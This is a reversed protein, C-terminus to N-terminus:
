MCMTAKHLETPLLLQHRYHTFRGLLGQSQRLAALLVSMRVLLVVSKM